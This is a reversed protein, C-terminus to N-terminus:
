TSKNVVIKDRDLHRAIDMAASRVQSLDAHGDDGMPTGVAIIIIESGRLAETPDASFTLRGSHQNRLVLEQLGPEFFPVSGKKLQEIRSAEVDLCTVANGLQAFCAGTVLGVYGTGIVSIHRM